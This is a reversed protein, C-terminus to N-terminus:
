HSTVISSAPRCSILIPTISTGTSAKMESGVSSHDSNIYLRISIPKNSFSWFKIFFSSFKKESLLLWGEYTQDGSTHIRVSWLSSPWDHFLQDMLRRKSVRKSESTKAPKHSRKTSNFQLLPKVSHSLVCDNWGFDTKKRAYLEVLVTIVSDGTSIM